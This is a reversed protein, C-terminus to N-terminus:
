RLIDWFVKIKQFSQLQGYWIRWFYLLFPLLVRVDLYLELYVIFDPNRMEIFLAKLILYFTYYLNQPGVKLQDFFIPKEGDRDVVDLHIDVFLLGDPYMLAKMLIIAAM